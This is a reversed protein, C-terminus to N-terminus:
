FLRDEFPGGKGVTRFYLQLLDYAFGDRGTAKRISARQIQVPMVTAAEVSNLDFSTPNVAEVTVLAQMEPKASLSTLSVPGELLQGIGAKGKYTFRITNQTARMNISNGAADKGTCTKAGKNFCTSAPFNSPSIDIPTWVQLDDNFLDVVIAASAPNKVIDNVIEKTLQLTGLLQSQNPSAVVDCRTLAGSGTCAVTQAFKESYNLQFGSGAFVNGASLFIVAALALFLALGTKKM